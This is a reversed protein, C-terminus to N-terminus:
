FGRESRDFFGSDLIQVDVSSGAEVNEAELPIVALGQGRILSTLV